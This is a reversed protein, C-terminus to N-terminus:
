HGADGPRLQALLGAVAPHSRRVKISTIEYSSLGLELFVDEAIIKELEERSVGAAVIAGGEEPNVTQGSAIFTGEAHYKKLYAIHGAAHREVEDPPKLHKVVLLHLEDM